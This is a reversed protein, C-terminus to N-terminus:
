KSIITTQLAREEFIGCTEDLALNPDHIDAYMGIFQKGPNGPGDRCIIVKLKCNAPKINSGQSQAAAALVEEDSKKAFISFSDCLWTIRDSGSATSEDEKELGARSQQLMMLMPNNYEWMLDHLITMRYGLTEWESDRGKEKPDMLKLYDLIVLAPNFKGKSDKGVNRAFFRRIVSIQQEVSWGKIDIYHIKYKEQFEKNVKKIMHIKAPESFFMGRKIQHMPIRTNQSCRRISNFNNALETDLYLVPIGQKAVHDAITLALFSKGRKARAAIVHVTGDGLAGGICNDYHKFGTEIGIYVKGKNQLEQQKELLWQDFNNGLIEIDSNKFLRSTFDFTKTEVFQAIKVPNDINEIEGKIEELKRLTKQRISNALVIRLFENFNKENPIAISKIEEIVNGFNVHDCISPFLM